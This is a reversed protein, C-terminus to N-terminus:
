LGLGLYIQFFGNKIDSQGQGLVTNKGQKITFPGQKRIDTLGYDYRVGLRLFEFKGELGAIASVEVPKYNHTNAVVVKSGERVNLLYSVQPGLHLSVNKLVNFVLIVPLSLYSFKATYDNKSPTEVGLSDKTVIPDGTVNFGKRQYLIEPQISLRNTLGIQAYAGFHYLTESKVSQYIKGAGDGKASCFNVGGKVGFGSNESNNSRFRPGSGGGSKSHLQARGVLPVAVLM